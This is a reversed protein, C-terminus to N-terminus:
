KRLTEIYKCVAVIEHDKLVGKYPTMLGKGHYVQAVANVLDINSKTLDKAGNVMMDGKFGHCTTCFLKFKKKADVAAVDDENVAAIIEKAKKLQKEPLPNTQQVPKEVQKATEDNKKEETKSTPYKKKSIQTNSDSSNNSNSCSLLLAIALFSLTIFQKIM